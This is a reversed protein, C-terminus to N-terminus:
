RPLPHGHGDRGGADIAPPHPTTQAAQFRSRPSIFATMFIYKGHALYCGADPKKQMASTKQSKKRFSPQCLLTTGVIYGGGAVVNGRPCRNLPAQRRAKVENM